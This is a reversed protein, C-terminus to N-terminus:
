STSAHLQIFGYLAPLCESSGNQPNKDVPVSPWWVIGNRLNPRQFIYKANMWFLLGKWLLAEDDLEEKTAVIPSLILQSM